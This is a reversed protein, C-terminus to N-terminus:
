RAATVRFITGGNDDSVLVSGDAMTVFDVPRGWRQGADNQWGTIFDEYSVPKGNVIRVRVVKAGTPVDRNWSGHFAVLADGRWERPFSTATNLFLMGLPASHAQMRLAPAETQNCRAQDNYEPNPIKPGHCYPWGYDKGDQLLNIEETPLNQHDPQLNDREHQTVWIQKSTPHVAMGVANRLGSSYVRGNQGNEDYVMVAARESATEVCLNCTSGISVYMKNDAGFVISRTWHNKGADYRNLQEATGTPVGNAGVAYRVVGGTNAVYFKGRHFAMGHPRDLGSLVVTQSDAVGDRNTDILRSISNRGPQSVYVNGNPGVIMARANQVSAFRTVTFGAPVSLRGDLTAARAPIMRSPTTDISANPGSQASLSPASCAATSLVALALFLARM